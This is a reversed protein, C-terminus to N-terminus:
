RFTGRGTCSTEENVEAPPSHDDRSGLSWYAQRIEEEEGKEREREEVTGLTKVNFKVAWTKFVYNTTIMLLFAM